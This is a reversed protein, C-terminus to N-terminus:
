TERLAAAALMAHVGDIGHADEGEGEAAWNQAGFRRLPAEAVRSGVDVRRRAVVSRRRPSGRSGPFHRCDRPCRPPMRAAIGPLM